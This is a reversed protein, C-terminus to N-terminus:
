EPLCRIEFSKMRQLNNHVLEFAAGFKENTEVTFYWVEDWQVEKNTATVDKFASDSFDGIHKGTLTLWIIGEGNEVVLHKISYQLNEFAERFKKYTNIFDKDRLYPGIRQPWNKDNIDRIYNNIFSRTESDSVVDSVMEKRTDSNKSEPDTQAQICAPLLLILLILKEM